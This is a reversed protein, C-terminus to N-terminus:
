TPIDRSTNDINMTEKSYYSIILLEDFSDQLYGLRYGLQKPLILLEFLRRSTFNTKLSNFFCSVVVRLTLLARCPSTM